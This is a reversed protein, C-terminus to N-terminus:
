NASSAAAAPKGAGLSVLKQDLTNAWYNIANEADGEQWVTVNKVSLGGFRQDAWAALLQGTQSDTLKAEGTASGVFAYTGTAAYKLMNLVRAQPVVVSVSRLVPTASTADSLAASLRLVGPGPGYAIEFNKSLYQVLTVYAYNCLIEQDQASVKSDDDAWFTIPIVMVKKYSSWQVNPAIYRLQAQQDSGEGAPQLLSYDKGLFGSPPPVAPTEGQAREVINPAPAATQSCGAVLAGFAIASIIGSLLKRIASKLDM